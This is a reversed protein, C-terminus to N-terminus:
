SNFKCINISHRFQAIPIGLNIFVSMVATRSCDGFFSGLLGINWMLDIIIFYSTHRSLSFELVYAIRSVLAAFVGLATQTLIQTTFKPTSQPLPVPPPFAELVVPGFENIPCRVSSLTEVRVSFSLQTSISGRLISIHTAHASAWPNQGLLATTNRCRKGDKWLVPLGERAQSQSRM